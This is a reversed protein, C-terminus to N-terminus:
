LSKFFKLKSCWNQSNQKQFIVIIWLWSVEEYTPFHKLITIWCMSLPVRRFSRTNWKMVIFININAMNKTTKKIQKMSCTKWFVQPKNISPRCWVLLVNVMIMTIFHSALLKQLTGWKSTSCRLQVKLSKVINISYQIQCCVTSSNLKSSTYFLFAIESIESAVLSTCCFTLDFFHLPSDAMDAM